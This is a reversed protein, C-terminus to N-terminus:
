GTESGVGVGKTKDARTPSVKAYLHGSPAGVPQRVMLTLGARVKDGLKVEVRTDALRPVILETRSGFKILGFRQGIGLSENVKAHCIIRRAVLGAVQRVEVPGPLPPDTDILITNSENRRGCEPHRADLFEGARYYLSRVRGVCPSRNIHVNFLSLFIGIRTAPGGISDHHDLEAIETVTGDAPSCLEGPAFARRRPPDRFFALVGLWVVLPLIALPWYLWYALAALGGLVLTALGIERIGEKAIM